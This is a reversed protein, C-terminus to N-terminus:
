PSLIFQNLDFNNQMIGTIQVAKLKRAFYKTQLVKFLNASPPGSSYKSVCSPTVLWWILLTTSSEVHSAFIQCLTTPSYIGIKIDLTDVVKHTSGYPLFLPFCNTQTVYQQNFGPPERMYHLDLTIIWYFAMKPTSRKEAPKQKFNYFAFM